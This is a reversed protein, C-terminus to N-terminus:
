PIDIISDVRFTDSEYDEGGRKGESFVVFQNGNETIKLAHIEYAPTTILDGVKTLHMKAPEKSDLPKYWYELQGSTILMHQVSEKHYHNGRIAGPNSNIIAVHNINANYFVDAIVGRLDSHVELPSNNNEFVNIVNM